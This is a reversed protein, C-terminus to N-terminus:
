QKKVGLHVLLQVRHEEKLPDFIVGILILTNIRWKKDKQNLIVQITDLLTNQVVCSSKMYFVNKM